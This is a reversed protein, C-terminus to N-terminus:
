KPWKPRLEELSQYETQPCFGSAIVAIFASNDGKLFPACLESLADKMSRTMVGKLHLHFARLAPIVPRDSITNYAPMWRWFGETFLHRMCSFVVTIVIMFPRSGKTVWTNQQKTITICSHPKKESQSNRIRIITGMQPMYETSWM